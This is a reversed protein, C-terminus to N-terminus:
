MVEAFDPLPDDFDDAIVILGHASGFHRQKPRAVLPVLKVFPKRDKDIIVEEGLAALEMLEEFRKGAQLFDVRTM